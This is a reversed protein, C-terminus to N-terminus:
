KGGELVKVRKELAVLEALRKLEVVGFRNPSGKEHIALIWPKGAAQKRIKTITKILPMHKWSKVEIFLKAETGDKNMTDSLGIGAKANGSLPRRRHGFMEAVRREEKKWAPNSM